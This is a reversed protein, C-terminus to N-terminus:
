REVAEGDVVIRIRQAPDAKILGISTAATEAWARNTLVAISSELRRNEKITAEQAAELDQAQNLLHLYTTGQWVLVALFVLTLASLLFLMKRM